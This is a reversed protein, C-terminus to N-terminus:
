MLMRGTASWSKARTMRPSRSEVLGGMRPFRPGYGMGMGMGMGRMGMGGMGGMGGMAGMGMGMGGMGGMGLRGSPVMGMGGMQPHPMMGGRCMPSALMSGRGVMSAPPYMGGGFQSYGYGGYMPGMGMGGMDMSYLGGPGGGARMMQARMMHERPSSSMMGMGYGNGYMNGDVVSGHRIHSELSEVDLDRDEVNSGRPRYFDEDDSDEFYDQQIHNTQPANIQCNQYQPQRQSSRYSNQNSSLPSVSRSYGQSRNQLNSRQM